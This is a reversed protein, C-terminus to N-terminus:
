QEDLDTVVLMEGVKEGGLVIRSGQTLQVPGDGKVQRGDVTTGNRSGRDRLWWTGQHFYISAHERSVDASGVRIDCNLGRGILVSATSVAHQGGHDDRLVMRVSEAVALMTVADAPALAETVMETPEGQVAAHDVDSIHQASLPHARDDVLTMPAAFPVPVVEVEYNDEDWEATERSLDHFVIASVPMVRVTGRRRLEDPVVVVQPTSGAAWGQSRAHRAYGKGADSALAAMDGGPGTLSEVDLPSVTVALYPHPRKSKDVGVSCQSNIARMLRRRLTGFFVRIFAESLWELVSNTGWVHIVKGAVFAVVLLLAGTVLAVAFLLLLLSIISYTM